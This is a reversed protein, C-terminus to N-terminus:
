DGDDVDVKEMYDLTEDFTAWRVTKRWRFILQPYGVAPAQALESGSYVAEYVSYAKYSPLARVGDFGNNRALQEATM